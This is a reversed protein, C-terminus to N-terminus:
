AQTRKPFHPQSGTTMARAALQPWWRDCFGTSLSHKHVPAPGGIPVHPKMDKGAGHGSDKDHPKTITAREVAHSRQTRAEILRRHERPRTIYENVLDSVFQATWRLVAVLVGIAAVIVIWGVWSSM